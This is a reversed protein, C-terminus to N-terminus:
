ERVGLIWGEVEAQAKESNSLPPAFYDSLMGQEDMDKAWEVCACADKEDSKPGRNHIAPYWEVLFHRYDKSDWGDFPWFHLPINQRSCAIQIHFLYPIGCLSQLGVSGRGGIKFIPKLNLGTVHQEVLRCDRFPSQLFPFRPDLAQSFNPGWFPGISIGLRHSIQNNAAEAWQHANSEPEEQIPPLDAAGETLGKVIDTWIEQLGTLAHWFGLPFSYQFDFGCLVRKGTCTHHYLRELLYSVVGSRTLGDKVHTPLSHETEAFAIHRKQIYPHKSGSFDIAIFVDFLRM